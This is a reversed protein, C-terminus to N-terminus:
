ALTVSHSFTISTITGPPYRMRHAAFHSPRAVSAVEYIANVSGQRDDGM